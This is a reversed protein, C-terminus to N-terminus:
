CGLWGDLSADKELLKIGILSIGSRKSAIVGSGPAICANRVNAVKSEEPAGLGLHGKEGVVVVVAPFLCRISTNTKSLLKLGGVLACSPITSLAPRARLNPVPPVVEPVSEEESLMVNSAVNSKSAVFLMSLPVSLM